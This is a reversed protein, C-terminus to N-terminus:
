GERLISDLFLRALHGTQLPRRPQIEFVAMGRYELDKLRRFLLNWEHAPIGGTGPTYHDLIIGAEGVWKQEPESLIEQLHLHVIEKGFTDLFEAMGERVLYVHGVDLCIKLGEVRDLTERLVPLQGNELALHVGRDGAYEVLEAALAYDVQDRNPAYLNDTHVVLIESGLAAATDIQQRHVERGRAGIASHLSVPMGQLAFALKDRQGPHYLDTDKQWSDWLEVGFHHKRLVSLIEELDPVPHYHNYNWLSVATQIEM